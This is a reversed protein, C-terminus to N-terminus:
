QSNPLTIQGVTSVKKGAHDAKQSAPNAKKDAPNVKQGVPTVIQGALIIIHGASIVIISSYNLIKGAPYPKTRLNAIQVTPNEPLISLKVPLISYKRVLVLQKAM